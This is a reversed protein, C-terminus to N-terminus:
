KSEAESPSETCSGRGETIEISTLPHQPKRDEVLPVNQVNERTFRSSFYSNFYEAKDGDETLVIGDETRLNGIGVRTKTKSNVYRYFAKPDRRALKGIEKEFDRM